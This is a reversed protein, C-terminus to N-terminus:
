KFRNYHRGSFMKSRLIGESKKAEKLSKAKKAPTNNNDEKENPEKWRVGKMGRGFRSSKSKGGKLAKEIMEKGVSMRRDGNKEKRGIGNKNSGDSKPSEENSMEKNGCKESQKNNSEASIGTKLKESVDRSRNSGNGRLSAPLLSRYSRVTATSASSSSCSSLDLERSLSGERSSKSSSLADYKSCSSNSELSNYNPSPSKCFFSELKALSHPYGSKKGDRTASKPVSPTKDKSLNAAVNSSTGPTSLAKSCSFSKGIKFTSTCSATAGKKNQETMSKTISSARQHKLDNSSCLRSNRSRSSSSNSQSSLASKFSLSSNTSCLSNNSRVSNSSSTSATSAISKNSSSPRITAEHVGTKKALRSSSSSSKQLSSNRSKVGKHSLGKSSLSKSSASKIMQRGSSTKATSKLSSSSKSSAIAALPVETASDGTYSYFFYKPNDRYSFKAPLAKDKNDIASRTKRPAKSVTKKQTTTKENLISTKLVTASKKKSSGDKKLLTSEKSLDKDEADTYCSSLSGDPSSIEKSSSLKKHYQNYQINSTDADDEAQAYFRSFVPDKQSVLDELKTDRGTRNEGNQKLNIETSRYNDNLGLDKVFSVDKFDFNSNAFIRDVICSSESNIPIAIPFQTSDIQFSLSDSYINNGDDDDSDEGDGDVSDEGDSEDSVRCENPPLRFYCRPSPVEDGDLPFYSHNEDLPSNPSSPPTIPTM